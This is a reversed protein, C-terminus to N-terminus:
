QDLRSSQHADSWFEHVRRLERIFFELDDGGPNVGLEKALRFFAPRMEEGQGHLVVASLLPRGLQHEHISIESLIEGFKERDRVQRLDLRAMRAVETYTTCDRRKAVDQLYQYIREHM